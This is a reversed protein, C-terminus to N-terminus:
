EAMELPNEKPYNFSSNTSSMNFYFKWPLQWSPLGEEVAEILILADKKGLVETIVYAISSSVFIVLSNCAISITWKSKRLIRAQKTEPDPGEMWQLDKLKRLFLLIGICAFGMAADIPRIQSINSFVGIWSNIFGHGVVKLGLLGKIQSTAVQISVASTLASIVPSSIFNILHWLNLVGIMVEILGVFFPCLLPDSQVQVLM